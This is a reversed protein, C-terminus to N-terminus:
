HWFFNAQLCCILLRINILSVKDAFGIYYGNGKEKLTWSNDHDDIISVTCGLLPKIDSKKGLPLSKTLRIINTEQQDTLLGEVVLLEKKEDIDPM